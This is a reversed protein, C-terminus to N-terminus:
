VSRSSFQGDHRDDIEDAVLRLSNLASSLVPATTVAHICASMMSWEVSRVTRAVAWFQEAAAAAAAASSISYLFCNALVARGGRTCQKYARPRISEDQASM